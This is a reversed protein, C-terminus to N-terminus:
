EIAASTVESLLQASQKFLRERIWTPFGADPNADRPLIAGDFCIEFVLPSAADKRHAPPAIVVRRNRSFNATAQGASWKPSM